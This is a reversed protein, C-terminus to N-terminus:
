KRRKRPRARPAPKDAPKAAAKNEPAAVQKNEPPDQQKEEAEEEAVPVAEPETISFTEVVPEPAIEMAWGERVFVNGLDAGAMTTFTYRRGKVYDVVEIGDPSGDHDVLMEITIPVNM